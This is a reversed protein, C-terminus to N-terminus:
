AGEDPFIEGLRKIEEESLVKAELLEQRMDEESIGEERGRRWADAIMHEFLDLSEKPGRKTTGGRVLKALTRAIPRLADVRKEAPKVGILYRRIAESDPERSKLHLRALLSEVSLNSCLLYTGILRVVADKPYFDVGRVSPHQDEISGMMGTAVFYNDQLAEKHHRIYEIDGRLTLLALEFLDIADAVPPLAEPEGAITRMRRTPKGSKRTLKSCHEGKVPHAGCVECIPYGEDKLEKYLDKATVNLEHAIKEESWGRKHAACLQLYKYDRPDVHSPISM